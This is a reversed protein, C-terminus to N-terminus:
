RELMVKIMKTIRDLEEDTATSLLGNIIQLKLSTESGKEDDWGMLYASSVNLASAIKRVAEIDLKSVRNTAYRHLKSHDIGTLEELERYSMGKEEIIDKIRKSTIENMKDGRTVKIITHIKM